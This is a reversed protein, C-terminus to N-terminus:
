FRKSEFCECEWNGVTYGPTGIVIYLLLFSKVKFEVNIFYKQYFIELSAIIQFVYYIDYQIDYIMDYCFLRITTAPM